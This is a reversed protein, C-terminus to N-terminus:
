EHVYLFFTKMVDLLGLASANTLVRKIEKLSEGTRGRLVLPEWEGWKTAEYLPKALLLSPDM